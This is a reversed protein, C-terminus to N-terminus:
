DVNNDTREKRKTNDHLLSIESTMAADTHNSCDNCQYYNKSDASNWILTANM